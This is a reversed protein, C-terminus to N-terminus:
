GLAPITSPHYVDVFRHNVLDLLPEEVFPEGSVVSPVFDDVVLLYV